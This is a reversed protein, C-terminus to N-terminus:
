RKCDETFKNVLDEFADPTFPYCRVLDSANFAKTRSHQFYFDDIEFDVEEDTASCEVEYAFLHYQIKGIDVSKCEREFAAIAELENSYWKVIGMSITETGVVWVFRTNTGETLPHMRTNIAVAENFLEDEEPSSSAQVWLNEQDTKFQYDAIFGNGVAARLMENLGDAATEIDSVSTHMAIKAPVILHKQNPTIAHM